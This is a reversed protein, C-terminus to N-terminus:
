CHVRSSVAGKNWPLSSQSTSIAKWAFLILKILLETELLVMNQNFSRQRKQHSKNWKNTDFVNKAYTNRKTANKERRRGLKTNNLNRAPGLRSDRKSKRKTGRVSRQHYEQFEIGSPTMPVFHPVTSTIFFQGFSITKDVFITFKDFQLDNPM